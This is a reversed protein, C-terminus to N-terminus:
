QQKNMCYKDSSSLQHRSVVLFPRCEFLSYRQVAQPPLYHRGTCELRLQLGNVMVPRQLLAILPYPAFFIHEHFLRCLGFWM